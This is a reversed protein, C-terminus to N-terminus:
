NGPFQPNKMLPYVKYISNEFPHECNPRRNNEIPKFPANVAASLLECNILNAKEVIYSSVLVHLRQCKWLLWLGIMQTKVNPTFM